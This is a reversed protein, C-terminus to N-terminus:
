KFIFYYANPNSVRKFESGNGIQYWVNVNYKQCIEFLSLDSGNQANFFQRLRNDKHNLVIVDKIGAKILSMTELHFPFSTTLIKCGPKILNLRFGNIILSEIADLVIKNEIQSSDKLITEFKVNLLFCGVKDTELNSLTRIQTLLSLIAQQIKINKKEM